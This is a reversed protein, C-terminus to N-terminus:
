KNYISKKIKKLSIDNIIYDLNNYLDKITGNNEIIYDWNHDDFNDLETESIHNINGNDIRKIENLSDINRNIKVLIWGNNKLSQFENIFRVDSCYINSNDKNTKNILLDIWVNPNISRAWETGIFQLFKRDKKIEFGCINQAYHLIDYLPDSFAIKKGGYKKILYKVSLDKGSGAKYGFAIKM